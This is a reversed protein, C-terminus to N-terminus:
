GLIRAVALFTLIVPLYFIWVSWSLVGSLRGSGATWSPSIEFDPEENKKRRRASNYQDRFARELRLYYGDLLSFIMIMPISFYLVNADKIAASLAILASSISMCYTKASSSNSAMRSIVAQLMELHKMHMEALLKEQDM